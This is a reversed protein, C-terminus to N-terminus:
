RGTALKPLFYDRRRDEFAPAFEGDAAAGNIQTSESPIKSRGRITKTPGPIPAPFLNPIRRDLASQTAPYTQQAASKECLLWASMGRRPLPIAGGTRVPRFGLALGLAFALEFTPALAGAASSRM